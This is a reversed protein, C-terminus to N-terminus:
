TIAVWNTADIATFSVNKGAELTTATDVGEGLNDDTAPYIKATQAGANIVVCLVGASATPLKVGDNANACVSIYNVVSTLATAGAQTQTTGATVSASV